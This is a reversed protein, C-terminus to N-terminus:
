DLNSDSFGIKCKGFCNEITTLDATFTAKLGEYQSKFQKHTEYRFSPSPFFQEQM